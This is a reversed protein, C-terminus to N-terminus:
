IKPWQDKKEQVFFFFRDKTIEKKSVPCRLTIKAPTTEIVEWDGALLSDEIHIKQGNKLPCTKFFTVKHDM